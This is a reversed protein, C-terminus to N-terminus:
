NNKYFKKDLINYQLNHTYEDFNKISLNQITKNLVQRVREASKDLKKWLTELLLEDEWFLWYRHVVVTLEENTLVTKLFCILKENDEKEILERTIDYSKDELLNSEIWSEDESEFNRLLFDMSYVESHWKKDIADKVKEQLKEKVTHDQLKKNIEKIKFEIDQKLENRCYKLEEKLITRKELLTKNTQQYIKEVILDVENHVNEINDEQAIKQIKNMLQRIHTPIRIQNYHINLYKYIWLQLWHRIYYIFNDNKSADYKSIWNLGSLLAEQLLDNALQEDYYWNSNAYKKVLNHAEKTMIKSVYEKAQSDWLKAEYVNKIITEKLSNDDDIQLILDELEDILIEKIENVENKSYNEENFSDTLFLDKLLKSIRATFSHYFKFLYIINESTDIDNLFVFDSRNFKNWIINYALKFLLTDNIDKIYKILKKIKKLDKKWKFNELKSDIEQVWEMTELMEVLFMDDDYEINDETENNIWSSDDNENKTYFDIIHNSFQFPTLENILEKYFKM